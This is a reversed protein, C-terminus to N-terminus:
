TPSGSRDLAQAVDAVLDEPSECGASMRIFGEGVENGPWRARREATSHVGGFSTADAVLECLALFREARERTGLDFVVISGFRTMQERALSHAPDDPRGPYRVASVDDRGALMVALALASACQRELRVDLTALSRHALWTEFPGAISGVTTRWALLRDFLGDDDVAVHGLLLDSHGSVYKTDSSVSFDAGLALPRQGLPTALTNDVAVLAGAVHARRALDRLDCVELGPNSPSEVWVLTVGDAVADAFAPGSPAFRLEVGRPELQDRALTRVAPYGDEPLLLVDGPMLTPLLVAAAAAMGSGFVLARGGELDGLAAEYAAWTRNGYRGYFYGEGPDGHLHYLSAFEPGPLLPEGHAADPLGAHIVRTGDGRAM